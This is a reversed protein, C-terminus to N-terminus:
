VNGYTQSPIAGSACSKHFQHLRAECVRRPPRLRPIGYISNGIIIQM